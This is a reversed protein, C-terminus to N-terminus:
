AVLTLRKNHLFLIEQTDEKFSHINSIAVLKTGIDPRAWQSLVSRLMSVNREKSQTYEIAHAIIESYEM